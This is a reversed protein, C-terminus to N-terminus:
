GRFKSSVWGVAGGAAAGVSGVVATAVSTLGAAGLPVVLYTRNIDLGRTLIM